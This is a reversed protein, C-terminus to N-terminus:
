LEDKSIHSIESEISAVRKKANDIKLLLQLKVM